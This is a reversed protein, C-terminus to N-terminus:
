LYLKSICTPVLLSSAFRGQRQAPVVPAAEATEAAASSGEKLKGSDPFQFETGETLCWRHIIQVRLLVRQANSGIKCVERSGRGRRELPLSPARTGTGEKRRQSEDRWELGSSLHRGSWGVESPTGTMMPLFFCSDLLPPHIMM